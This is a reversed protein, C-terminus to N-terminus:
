DPSVQYFGKVMGGEWCSPVRVGVSPERLGEHDSERLDGWTGTDICVGM